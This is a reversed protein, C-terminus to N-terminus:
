VGGIIGYLGSFNLVLNDEAAEFVQIEIGM